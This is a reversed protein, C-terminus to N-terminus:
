PSSASPSSPSAPRSCRCPSGPGPSPCTAPAARAVAGLSVRGASILDLINADPAPRGMILDAQNECGPYLNVRLTHKGADFRGTRIEGWKSGNRGMIRNALSVEVDECGPEITFDAVVTEGVVRVETGFPDIKDTPNASPCEEDPDPAPAPDPSPSPSPEPSPSPSPEPSPSPSPEPETFQECDALGGDGEVNLVNDLDYADPDELADGLVLYAWYDCGPGKTTLSHTATGGTFSGASAAHLEAENGDPDTAYTVLSATVTGCAEPVTFDISVETGDSNVAFDGTEVSSGDPCNPPLPDAAAPGALALALVLGALPPLLRRIV